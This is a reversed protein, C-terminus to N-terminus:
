RSRKVTFIWSSTYPPVHVSGEMIFHHRDIGRCSLGELAFEQNGEENLTIKAEGSRYLTLTTLFVSNNSPFMDHFKGSVAYTEADRGEGDHRMINFGPYTNIRWDNFYGIDPTYEEGMGFSTNGDHYLRISQVHYPTHDFAAPDSGAPLDYMDYISSFYPRCEDALVLTPITLFGACLAFMLTKM